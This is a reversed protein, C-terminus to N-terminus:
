VVEKKTIAEFEKGHAVILSDGLKKGQLKRELLTEWKPTHKFRISLGLKDMIYFMRTWFNRVNKICGGIEEIEIIRGKNLSQGIQLAADNITELQCDMEQQEKKLEPKTSELGHRIFLWATQTTAALLPFANPNLYSAALQIKFDTNCQDFGNLHKVWASFSSHPYPDEPETLQSHKQDQANEDGEIPQHPNIELESKKEEKQQIEEDSKIKDTPFKSKNAEENIYEM